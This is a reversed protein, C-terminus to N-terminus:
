NIAVLKLERITPQSTNSIKNPHLENIYWSLFLAM